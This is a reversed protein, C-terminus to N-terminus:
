VLAAVLWALPQPLFAVAAFSALLAGALIPLLKRSGITDIQRGILISGLVGGLGWVWILAFGWSGLGRDAAMPLMYTYLGLSTVGFVFALLIGLLM